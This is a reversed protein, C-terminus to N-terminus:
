RKRNEEIVTEIIHWLNGVSKEMSFESCIRERAKEGLRAALTPDRALWLMYEAMGDIDGEEVLFGTEGHIVVDKIGAHRTSVVPLGASGAELIAVPTGESDGYSTTVSHQVFARAQRMTYAVETPPRVGLFEVANTIKLARALQKCAELLDGDGIMILRADPYTDVVKKFALLTLHPAKKEVFRGVAVFVPPALAPKAGSFFSTDVGYPNYFLKERPAGLSLLKQEMDRSVAIIAAAITFMRKYGEGYEKLTKQDSADFGHFHVILPIKAKQCADMVAVGTPGYEALVADVKNAKLFRVLAKTQFYNPPLRLLRRLAYRVARHTLNSSLLPKDEDTWKPYWGGYLVRVKAPLWEIHARIFTESYANKNPSIICVTYKGQNPLLIGERTVRVGLCSIVRSKRLSQAELTVTRKPKLDSFVEKGRRRIVVHVYDNPHWIHVYDRYVVYGGLDYALKDIDEFTVDEDIPQLAEPHDTRLYNQYFVSPCTLILTGDLKLAKSLHTHLTNRLEKPIHEYVDIMVIADFPPSLLESYSTVDHVEFHLGPARFLKKALDIMKPSIDIGLVYAGKFHRKIEWTSWGIGCGVDLIRQADRPIWKLAHIIAAEVRPNGHCYDALLHSSLGDYFSEVRELKKIM